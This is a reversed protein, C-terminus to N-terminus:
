IPRSLTLSRWRRGDGVRWYPFRLFDDPLYHVSPLIHRILRSVRRKARLEVYRRCVRSGVRWGPLLPLYCGNLWPDWLLVPLPVGRCLWGDTETETAIRFYYPDSHLGLVSLSLRDVNCHRGWRPALPQYSSHSNGSPDPHSVSVPLM